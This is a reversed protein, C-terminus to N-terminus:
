FNVHLNAKVTADPTAETLGFLVGLELETTAPSSTHPAIGFGGLRSPGMAQAEGFVSRLILLPGIRHEQIALSPGSAVDAVRGYGEFGIVVAKSLEHRAQWGYVFDVGDTHNQGFSKEVFPNLALENAGARMTIAPGFLTVNTERADLAGEVAHFWAIGVGDKKEPLARLVFVNEMIARQLRTTEGDPTNFSVLGKLQWGSTIGYGLGIEHGTRIRDASSSFGNQAANISEFGWRGAEFDAEKIHYTQAAALTVNAILSAATLAMALGVKDFQIPM